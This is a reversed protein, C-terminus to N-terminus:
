SRTDDARSLSIDKEGVREDTDCVREGSDRGKGTRGYWLRGRPKKCFNFFLTNTNLRLARTWSVTAAVAV